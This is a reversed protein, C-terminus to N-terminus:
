PGFINGVADRDYESADYSNQLFYPWAAEYYGEGEKGQGHRIDVTLYLM